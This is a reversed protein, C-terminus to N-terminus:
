YGIGKGTIYRYLDELLYFKGWCREQEQETQGYFPKCNDLMRRETRIWELIDEITIGKKIKTM